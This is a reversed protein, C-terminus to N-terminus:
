PWLLFFPPYSCGQRTGRLVPFPESIIGNVRVRILPDTYLLKVWSIFIPGFGLIELLGFLYGWEVSDFAKKTDLSAVVREGSNDHETQLNIFLRRVNMQACRGKIFGTQDPNVLKLIVSQLRGALVKALIKTDVNMLSIPRYSECEKPDKGGKHILVVLAERMSPPLRGERRATLFVRLLRPALGGSFTTYWESPIGDLGPSKRPAFSAIAGEVEEVTIDAELKDRDM